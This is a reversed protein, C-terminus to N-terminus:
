GKLGSKNAWDQTRPGAKSRPITLYAKSVKQEAQDARVGRGGGRGGLFLLQQFVSNGLEGGVEHLLLLLGLTEGLELVLVLGHNGVQFTLPVSPSGWSM